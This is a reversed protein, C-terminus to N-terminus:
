HSATTLTALQGPWGAPGRARGARTGEGAGRSSTCGSVRVQEESALSWGEALEVNRLIGDQRDFLLDLLEVSDLPGM